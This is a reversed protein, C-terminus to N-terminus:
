MQVAFELNFIDDDDDDDGDCFVVRGLDTSSNRDIVPEASFALSKYIKFKLATHHAGQLAIAGNTVYRCFSYEAYV